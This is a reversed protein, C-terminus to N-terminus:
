LVKYIFSLIRKELDGRRYSYFLDHNHFTCYNSLHINNINIGQISLRSIINDKLSFPENNVIYCKECIHPGFIFKINEININEKRLIKVISEIVGSLLGQRSVHVLGYIRGNTEYLFLPICDATFICIIINNCNTLVGDSNPIFIHNNQKYCLYHNFNEKSIFDIKNKHVQECTVIYYGNPFNLNRVVQYFEKKTSCLNKTLTSLVFRETVFTLRNNDTVWM